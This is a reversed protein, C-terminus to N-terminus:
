YAKRKILYIIKNFELVVIYVYICLGINGFFTPLLILSNSAIYSLFPTQGNLIVFLPICYGAIIFICSLILGQVLHYTYLVPSLLIIAATLLFVCGAIILSLNYYDLALPVVFFLVSVIVCGLSSLVANVTKPKEGSSKSKGDKVLKELLTPNESKFYNEIETLNANNIVHTVRYNLISFTFIVRGFIQKRRTGYVTFEIKQLSGSPLSYFLHPTKVIGNNFNFIFDDKYIYIVEKQTKKNTNLNRFIVFCIFLAVACGFIQTIVSGLNFSGYM